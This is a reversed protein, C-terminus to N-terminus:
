IRLSLPFLSARRPFDHALDERAEHIDPSNLGSRGTAAVRHAFHFSKLVSHSARALVATLGDCSGRECPGMDGISPHGTRAREATSGLQQGAAGQMGPMTMGAMAMGDMKMGGSDSDSNHVQSSHCDSNMSGLACSLDCAAALASISALLAVMSGALIRKMKM